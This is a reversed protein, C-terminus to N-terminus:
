GDVSSEYQQVNSSWWVNNVPTFFVKWGHNTNYETKLFVDSLFCLIDSCKALKKSHMREGELVHIGTCDNHLFELFSLTLTIASYQNSHGSRIKCARKTDQSRARLIHRDHLIVCRYRCTNDGVERVQM